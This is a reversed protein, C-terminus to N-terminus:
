RENIKQEKLLCVGRQQLQHTKSFVSYIKRKWCFAVKWFYLSYFGSKEGMGSFRKWLFPRMKPKLGNGRFGVSIIHKRTQATKAGFFNQGFCITHVFFINNTEKGFVFLTQCNRCFDMKWCKEKRMVVWGLFVFKRPMKPLKQTNKRRRYKKRRCLFFLFLIHWKSKSFRM